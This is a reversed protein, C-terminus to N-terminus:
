ISGQCANCKTLTPDSQLHVPVGKAPRGQKALCHVKYAYGRPMHVRATKAPLASQLRQIVKYVYGRPM